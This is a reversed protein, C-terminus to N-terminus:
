PCNQLLGRRDRWEDPERLRLNASRLSSPALGFTQRCSRSFHSADSFGAELASQTFSLGGLARVLATGLRVWRRYSRVPMGIQKRFLHSFRSESLGVAEAFREPGAGGVIRGTVLGRLTILFEPWGWDPVFSPVSFSKRQM